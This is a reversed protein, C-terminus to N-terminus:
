FLRQTKGCKPCVAVRSICGGRGMQPRMKVVMNVECLNCRAVVRGFGDQGITTKGEDVEYKRKVNIVM